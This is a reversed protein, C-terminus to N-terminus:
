IVSSDHVMVGLSLSFSFGKTVHWLRLLMYSTTSLHVRAALSMTFASLVPSSGLAAPPRRRSKAKKIRIFLPAFLRATPRGLILRNLLNILTPNQEFRVHM